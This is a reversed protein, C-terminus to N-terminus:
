DDAFPDGEVNFDGCTMRKFEQPSVSEKLKQLADPTFNSEQTPRSFGLRNRLKDYDERTFEKNGVEEIGVIETSNAHEARALKEEHGVGKKDAWSQFAKAEDARVGKALNKSARQRRRAERKQFAKHNGHAKNSIGVKKRRKGTRKAGQTYASTNSPKFADLSYGQTASAFAALSLGSLLSFKNPSKM